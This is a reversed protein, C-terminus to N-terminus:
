HDSLRIAGDGHLLFSFWGDWIVMLASQRLHDVLPLYRNDWLSFGRCTVRFPQGAELSWQQYQSFHHPILIPIPDTRFGGQWWAGQDGVLLQAVTREHFRLSTIISVGRSLLIRHCDKGIERSSSEVEVPILGLRRKIVELLERSFRYTATPQYNLEPIKLTFRYPAVLKQAEEQPDYPKPPGFQPEKSSEDGSSVTRSRQRVLSAM